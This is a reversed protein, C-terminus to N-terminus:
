MKVFKSTYELLGNNLKVFYQGSSLAQVNIELQLDGNIKGSQFVRGNLDFVEYQYTDKAAFAPNKVLIYDQAPNPSISAPEINSLDTSGVLQNLPRRYVGEVSSLYTAYFYTNDVELGRISSLNKPLNATYNKVKSLDDTGTVKLTDASFGGLYLRKNHILLSRARTLVPLKVTNSLATDSIVVGSSNAIVLKGNFPKIDYITGAFTPPFVKKTFIKKSENYRYLNNFDAIFITKQHVLIENSSTSPSPVTTWTNGADTSFSCNGTSTLFISDKTPIYARSFNNTGTLVPSNIKNWKSNVSDFSYLGKYFDLAFLANSTKYLKSSNFSPFAGDMAPKWIKSAEEFRLMGIDSVMIKQNNYVKMDYKALGTYSVKPDYTKWTAGDDTSEYIGNYYTTYTISKDAIILSQIYNNINEKPSITQWTAGNNASRHLYGNGFTYTYKDHTIPINTAFDTPTSLYDDWKNLALNFKKLRTTNAARLTHWIGSKNLSISTFTGINLRKWPQNPKNLNCSYLRTGTLGVLTSDNYIEISSFTLTKLSDPAFQEWKTPDTNPNYIVGGIAGNPGTTSSNVAAYTKIGKYTIDSFTLSGPDDTKIFKNTGIIDDFIYLKGSSIMTLFGVDENIKLRGVSVGVPLPAETLKTFDKGYYVKSDGGVVFFNDEYKVIQNYSPYPKDGGIAEWQAKSQFSFALFAITFFFLLNTKKM